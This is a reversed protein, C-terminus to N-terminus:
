VEVADLQRGLHGNQQSPLLGLLPGDLGVAGRVTEVVLYKRFGLLPEPTRGTNRHLRRHVKKSGRARASRGASASRKPTGPSRTPSCKWTACSATSGRCCM